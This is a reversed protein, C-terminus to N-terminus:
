RRGIEGPIHGTTQKAYRQMFDVLQMHANNKAVLIPTAGTQDSISMDAGASLLMEVCDQNGSYAAAHLATGGTADRANVLMSEKTIGPSDKLQYHDLIMKVIRANGAECALHLPLLRRDDARATIEEKGM